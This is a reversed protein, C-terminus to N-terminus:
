ADGGWIGNRDHWEQEAEANLHSIEDGTLDDIDEDYESPNVRTRLDDRLRQGFCNYLAGCSPCEIDNQGRFRSIQTHCRDCHGVSQDHSIREMQM